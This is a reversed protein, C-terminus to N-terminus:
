WEAVARWGALFEIVADRGRPRLNNTLSTWCCFDAPRLDGLGGSARTGSGAPCIRSGHALTRTWASKRWDRRDHTRDM